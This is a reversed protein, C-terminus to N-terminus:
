TVYSFNKGEGRDQVPKILAFGDFLTKRREDTVFLGEVDTWFFSADSLIDMALTPFYERVFVLAMQHIVESYYGNGLDFISLLFTWSFLRALFDLSMGFLHLSYESKM